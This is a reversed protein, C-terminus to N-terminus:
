GCCTCDTTFTWICAKQGFLKELEPMELKDLIPYHYAITPAMYALSYIIEPSDVYYSLENGNMLSEEKGIFVIDSSNMPNHEETLMGESEEIMKYICDMSPEREEDGDYTQSLVLGRRSKLVDHGTQTAEYQSGMHKKVIAEVVEWGPEDNSKNKLYEKIEEPFKKAFINIPIFIGKGMLIDYIGM